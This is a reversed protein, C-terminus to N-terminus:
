QLQATNTNIFIVAIQDMCAIHDRILKPFKNALLSQTRQWSNSSLSAAQDCMDLLTQHERRHCGCLTGGASHMLTAEHDFHVRMLKKLRAILFPFQIQECNVACLWGSAIVRIDNDITDHGLTYQKGILPRVIRSVMTQRDMLM